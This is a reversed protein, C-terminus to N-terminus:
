RCTLAAIRLSECVCFSQFTHTHMVSVMYRIVLLRTVMLSAKQCGSLREDRGELLFTNDAVSARRSSVCQIHTKRDMALAM